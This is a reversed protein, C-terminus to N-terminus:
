GTRHRDRHLVACRDDPFVHALVAPAHTWRLGHGDLNLGALVPSAIGLPYFASFLDTRFGPATVEATQVAGRCETDGRLRCCAVGRGGVPKRSVLGNHGAGVVIADPASEQDTVTTSAIPSLDAVRPRESM